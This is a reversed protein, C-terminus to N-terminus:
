RTCDQLWEIVIYVNVFASMTLFYEIRIRTVVVVMVATVEM